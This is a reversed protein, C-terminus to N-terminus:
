GNATLNSLHTPLQLVRLSKYFLTHTGFLVFYKFRLANLMIVHFFSDFVNVSYIDHSYLHLNSSLFHLESWHHFLSLHSLSHLFRWAHSFSQIQSGAIHVQLFPYYKALIIFSEVFVHSSFIFSVFFSNWCIKIFFFSGTFCM